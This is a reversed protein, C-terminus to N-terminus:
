IPTFSPRECPLLLTFQPHRLIPRQPSYYPRLPTLYCPTQPLTCLLSSEDIIQVGWWINKRTILDLLILNVPGTARIPSILPTFLTKTPFGSPFLCSQSGPASPLIINLNIKLFHFTLAHNSQDPEPYPCTASVQSHPFSGETEM